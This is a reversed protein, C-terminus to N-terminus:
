WGKKKGKDFGPPPEVLGPPVEEEPPTAGFEYAGMDVIVTGDSNGDFVRLNGDLDAEQLGPANNDGADICPSNTELHYNANASDVFGPDDSIDQAGATCGSYNVNNEWVNNHNIEHSSSLDCNLGYESNNSIINNTITPLSLVSCDIGYDNNTIVNNTVMPSSQENDIGIGHGYIINNTITPSSHVECHIGEGGNNSIQNFAIMPSSYEFCFIGGATNDSITNRVITPYSFSDNDIGWSGNGSILNNTIMPSSKENYIGEGNGTITNDQIKPSAKYCKIGYNGRTITFGSIMSSNAGKVVQLASQGQGDLITVNAGSGQVTVGAKLEITENYTGPAVSVTDGWSAADIAQQISPHDVPVKIIDGFAPGTLFLMIGFVLGIIKLPKNNGVKKM